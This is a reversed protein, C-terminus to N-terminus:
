DPDPDGAALLAAITEHVPTPIGHRAGLRIVAGYLADFETPRGARRDQLMSTIGQSGSVAAVLRDIGEDSLTAGEARAVAWCEAVLRRALAGMDPRGVVLIPRNCLATPGNVAVNIGLKRWAEDLHDASIRIEARSGEFLASLRHGAPVDPVILYGASHHRTHGPAVLEAGCYVVAALVPAGNVFPALRTEGEVGNQVSVVTTDPGCLRHLWPAAGETQQAKTAVLVWDAPGEVEAPDTIVRAPAKVPVTASEVLYRDFPRRACAVVDSGAAALHAAFFTGVGGPGVVAVRTM